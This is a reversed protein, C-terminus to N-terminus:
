RSSNKFMHLPLDRDISPISFFSKVFLFSGSLILLIGFIRRIKYVLQDKFKHQFKGALFIKLLDVAFFTGLVTSMYIFFEYFHNYTASVVLVVSIWFVMIGINVFNLFFGKAFLRLTSDSRSIEDKFHLDNRSYLMFWGYIFIIVAGMKFLSPHMQIYAAIERSSYYALTICVIDASLVGLDMIVAAKTGKLLSTEILMFFVPGILILSLMIGLTMASLILAFM